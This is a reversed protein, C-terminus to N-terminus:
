SEAQGIEENANGGWAQLQQLSELLREFLEIHVDVEQGIDDPNYQVHVLPAPEFEFAPQVQPDVEADLRKAASSEAHPLLSWKRSVPDPTPSGAPYNSSGALAM